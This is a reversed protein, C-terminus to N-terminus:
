DEKYFAPFLKARRKELQKDTVSSLRVMIFEEGKKTHEKFSTIQFIQKDDFGMALQMSDLLPKFANDLDSLKSSYGVILDLVLNVDKSVQHDRLLDYIEEKFARYEVTDKKFKAYHMRNASFPKTNLKVEVILQKPM